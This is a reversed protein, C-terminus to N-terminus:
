QLGAEEETQCEAPTETFGFDMGEVSAAGLLSELSEADIGAAALQRRLVALASQLRRYLPRQPLHLMRSIDAIRISQAFHLRLIMREELPLAALADRLARNARESLTRRENALVRAEASEIAAIRIATATELETERPRIRREPLRGLMAEVDRRGLTPDVAQVMPVAEELSRRDRRILTELLVAAPGLRLAEASPRWRGQRRTWEDALLREVVVTLYTTLSARGEYKRLVAYDNEVLALKVCSAFDEADAGYLRARRCVGDVIDDVLAVNAELVDRPEQM